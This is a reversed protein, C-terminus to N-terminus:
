RLWKTWVQFILYMWASFAWHWHFDLGGFLATNWYFWKGQTICPISVKVHLAMSMCSVSYITSFVSIIKNTNKYNFFIRIKQWKPWKESLMTWYITTEIPPVEPQGGVTKCKRQNKIWNKKVAKFFLLMSNTPFMWHFTKCKGGCKSVQKTTNRPM